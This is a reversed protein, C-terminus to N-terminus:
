CGCGGRSRYSSSSAVENVTGPTTGTVRIGGNCRNPDDCCKSPRKADCIEPTVVVLEGDFNVFSIAPVSGDAYNAPDVSLHDRMMQVAVAEGLRIGEIADSRYHVGAWDRGLAINSALKNIEGAVTGLYPAAPSLAIGNTSELFGTFGPLSSWATNGDYFMKLLTACAGVISAHGSPFSPHLPAGEPYMLPLTYSGVGGNWFQNYTFVSNLISSNLVSPKIQYTNNLTPDNEVQQIRAGFMEPRIQRYHLWKWFWAHQLALCCAEGFKCFRSVIGRGCVFDSQVSLVPFTPNAPAKLSDLICLANYFFQFPTDKHVAEGLSRGNYIYVYSPAVTLTPYIGQNIQLTQALTTGFEVVNAPITKPYYQYRQVAPLMGGNVVDRYLFQSIYPGAQEAASIGKFISASTIPAPFQYRNTLKSLVDPQNLAQIVQTITPDTSYVSFPVDRSLAQSYVELMESGLRRSFIAGPEPVPISGQPAGALVSSNSCLPDVQKVNTALANLAKQDNRLLARYFNRYYNQDPIGNADQVFGKDYQAFLPDGRRLEEKEVRNPFEGLDQAVRNQLQGLESRIFENRYLFDRDTCLNKSSM